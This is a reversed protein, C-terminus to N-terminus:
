LTSNDSRLLQFLCYSLIILGLILASAKVKKRVALTILAFIAIPGATALRAASLDEGLGIGGIALSLYLSLAFAVSAFLGIDNNTKEMSSHIEGIENNLTPVSSATRM